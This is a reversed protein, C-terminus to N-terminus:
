FVVAAHSRRALGLSVASTWSSGGFTLTEITTMGLGASNMGGISHLMGNFECTAANYKAIGLSAAGAWSGKSLYSVTNVTTGPASQGGIVFLAGSFSITSHLSLTTPLSQSLQSWGIGNFTYISSVFSSTGPSGGTWFLLSDHVCASGGFLKAPAAAINTWADRTFVEVSDFPVGSAARGGIVFIKSQFVAIGFSYRATILPASLSWSSGGFAFTTNVAKTGDFGGVFYLLSDFVVAGGNVRAGPMSPITSWTKGDFAAATSLVGGGSLGGLVFM